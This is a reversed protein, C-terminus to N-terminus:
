VQPTGATSMALLIRTRFGTKEMASRIHSKVTHPSIFLKAAIAKNGLGKRVLAVVEQERLTLIVQVKARVAQGTEEDELEIGEAAIQVFLPSTLEEPLVHEGDAVSMVTDVLEDASAEKLVFGAVGAKVYDAVDDSQEVLDTIVVGADPLVKRTTVAARLSLLEDTGSEVLVVDPQKESLTTVNLTAEASIVVVGPQANLLKAHEDRSIRNDDVLAVLVVEEDLKAPTESM